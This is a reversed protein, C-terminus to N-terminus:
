AHGVNGAFIRRAAARAIDLEEQLSNICAELADLTRCDPTVHVVGQEDPQAGVLALFVRPLTTETAPEVHLEFAGLARM